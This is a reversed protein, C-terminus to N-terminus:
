DRVWVRGVDPVAWFTSVFMGQVQSGRLALRRQDFYPIAPAFETLIRRALAGYAEAADGRDPLTAIRALEADVSPENLYSINTSGVARIGSSSYLPGLMANGDLYDPAYECLYLDYPNTRRAIAAAFQDQRVPRLEVTVNARAFAEKVAAALQNGDPTDRFAYVLNVRADGLLARAKAPDGSRKTRDPNAPYGPVRPSLLSSAYDGVLDTGTSNLAAEPDFALALARRRAPDKVRSANFCLDRHGTGVGDVLRGTQRQDYVNEIQTPDLTSLQVSGPQEDSMMLSTVAARDPLFRVDYREPYAVRIPDTAPNWAPNRELTLSKRLEHTVVRYPGTVPVPDADSYRWGSPVAATTPLAAVTPLDPHPAPFTLRLTRDDPAEVGPPYPAKPTPGTYVARFDAQGALWRQLYTFGTAREGFSRAIGNAVDRATVAQGDAFKVGPRITFEWTRGGDSSRGTDTALDGVLTAGTLGDERYGTLTRALLRSSGMMGDPYRNQVPDLEWYQAQAYVTVTGGRRAGPVAPAPGTAADDAAYQKVTLDPKSPAVARHNQEPWQAWIVGAGAAVALVVAAATTGLAVRRKRGRRGAGRDAEAVSVPGGVAGSAEDPEGVTPPPTTFEATLPHPSNLHVTTRSVEDADSPTVRAPPPVSPLVGPRQLTLAALLEQTGPREGPEKRLAAAVLDRLPADLEGLGPERELTRYLMVEPPGVGFPPTGSGAFCVAAGWAHVDTAPTVASGRFQEPAMYPPSGIAGSTLGSVLDAARAIGFDIVRPGFRSLIVNSPKLDRHVIGAEHIAVLATAIGIAVADLAGGHLPGQEEVVDQLTPGDVFETVLFPQEGEVDVDLVAATSFRAVRAALTAESRFRTRFEPADALHPHIVKVAVQRTRGDPEEAVGAYVIGMGGAGLRGVLRYRGLRQPDKDRLPQM